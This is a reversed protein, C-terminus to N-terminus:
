KKKKIILTAGAGVILGILGSVVSTLGSNGFTSGYDYNPAYTTEPVSAVKNETYSEPFAAANLVWNAYVTVNSNIPRGFNFPTTFSPDTFWGGFTYGDYYPQFPMTAYEGDKVTIPSVYSGGMSNFTVTYYVANESWKAYLTIDSYVPTTDQARRTFGSDYYWGEFVSGAKSCNPLNSIYGGDSVTIPPIYDGGNTYFSVSHASSSWKAYLTYDRYIATNGSVTSTFSPDTYWGEFTYGSRVPTPPAIYAFTTGDSVSMPSIYSGGNSNFTITHASADWRAYLTIDSYIPTTDQARRTFGSDYYWGEFTYGSKSTAPFRSIYGGDNVTIPAVYTGGNTYFSVTHASAEWRAYLTYDNYIRTNDSVTSTFSPNTYWGVFRYGSRIPTPPIINGFTTGDNVTVPAIYTGGNSNFTITHSSAIWKAYLTVDSYIPSTDQARRTFNSDYYWGDFTYGNKTTAPFRSIYGGDSVTVPAVYSGGNTYFSVTHAATVWKAYLTIDSNIPTTDQARRTLSRDYYWGDFKFGNRTTVPFRSIYSGENVSVPDVYTGGNTEFTVTYAVKNTPTLTKGAINNETAATGSSGLTFRNIFYVSGDYSSAYISDSLKSWGLGITSSASSVGCGIGAAGSGGNATVNGGTIKVECGSDRYGSGIGAANQGGSARVTGGGIDVYGSSGGIGPAYKGGCAYVTGSIVSIEGCRFGNESGIGANNDFASCNTGNTTGAYLTGNNGVISLSAGSPVSIGQSARLVANKSFILDADGLVSMRDSVTIDDFVVYTGSDLLETRSTVAFAPSLATDQSTINASTGANYAKGGVRDAFVSNFRITGSYSSAYIVDKMGTWGLGINKAVIGDAGSGGVAYVSGGFINVNSGYGGLGCMGADASPNRGTTTGAYLTGGTGGSSYTTFTCGQAVEIGGKATLTSGSTLIIKADGIVSIRSGVTVNGRVVYWGSELVNTDSGITIYEDCYLSNGFEDLYQIENAASVEIGVSPFVNSGGAAPLTGCTAIVAAAAIICSLSKGSRRM